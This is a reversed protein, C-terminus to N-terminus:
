WPRWMETSSSASPRPSDQSAQSSSSVPSLKARKAPPYDSVDLCRKPASKYSFDLADWQGTTSTVHTPPSQPPSPPTSKISKVHAIPQLLTSPVHPQPPQPPPSCNTQIHLPSVPTPQQLPPSLSAVSSRTVATFASAHTPSQLPLVLALEGSALRSPYMQLRSGNNNLDEVPSTPPLVASTSPQHQIQPQPPQQTPPITSNPNVHPIGTVCSALHGMLRQKVGQDVGPLRGVFRNVEGACESFGSRFRQMVGADNTVASTVQQRQVAQLHKVTM